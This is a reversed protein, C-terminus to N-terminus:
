FVWGLLLAGLVVIALGLSLHLVWRMRGRSEGQRAETTNITPPPRDDPM